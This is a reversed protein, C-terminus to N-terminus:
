RAIIVKVGDIIQTGTSLVILYVGAALDNVPVVIYDHNKTRNFSKVVKGSNDFFRLLIESNEGILSYEIILITQSPNPYVKLENKIHFQQPHWFINASKVEGSPLIYPENYPLNETARLINQAYTRAMGNATQYIQGIMALAASDAQLISNGSDLCIRNSAHLQEFGEHEQNQGPSFGYTLPLANMELEVGTNNGTQALKFIRLYKAWLYPCNVTYAIISDNAELSLSDTVFYRLLCQLAYSYRLRYGSINAQLDEMAGTIYIGQMVESMQEESLQNTRLNLNTLVTDSKAAQPNESLIDTIMASSLVDEKHIAAVMVTDSLYPSKTLLESYLDYGIPPSSLDIETKLESTNGGDTLLTLLGQLSDHNTEAMFLSSKLNEIGGGGGGHILQSPCCASDHTYYNYTSTDLTITSAGQYTYFPYPSVVKISGSPDHQYYTFTGGENHYRFDLPEPFIGSNSFGNGAPDTKLFGPNGQARNIGMHTFNPNDTTVAVDYKRYNAFDNCVISLGFSGDDNRNKNQALIGVGLNDFTNNYIENDANQNSGINSNNIVIGIKSYGHENSIGHFTNEEVKYGNCADLYLGGSYRRDNTDVKLVEFNCRTVQALSVASAYIGTNNGTFEARDVIFTRTPDFALASIGYDLNSFSSLEWTTCSDLHSEVCLPDIEFTSNFSQIGIGEVLSSDIANQFRCGQFHVMNVDNLRVMPGAPSYPAPLDSVTQFICDRFQDIKPLRCPNIMASIYNNFFASSFAKVIGGAETIIHVPVPGSPVMDPEGKIGTTRIGYIANEITANLLHVYGQYNPNSLPRTPDGAVSIGNWLSGCANTLKGGLVHLQGGPRVYIGTGGIFSVESRISLIGGSDVYVNHDKKMDTDWTVNTNIREYTGDDKCDLRTEWIGYGFTAIRLKEPSGQLYEMDTVIAPPLSTSFPMWKQSSFDFKYVGIDNGLFLNYGSSASGFVDMCNVPLNPLGESPYSFTAGGNESYAIRRKLPDSDIYFNGFSVWIKEPNDPAVVIGTIGYRYCYNKFAPDNLCEWTPNVSHANTTKVLYSSDAVPWGADYGIYLYDPNNQCAAIASISTNTAITNPGVDTLRNFFVSFGSGWGTSRYLNQYGAYVINANGPDILLQKRNEKSLDGAALTVPSITDSLFGDYTLRLHSASYGPGHFFRAYQPNGPRIRVHYADGKTDSYNWEGPAFYNYHLVHNDQSGAALFDFNTPCSNLGYFQTIYLGRGNINFFKFVTDGVVRDGRTVGGDNGIFLYEKSEDAVCLMARTDDHYSIYDQGFTQVNKVTTGIRRYSYFSIDGTFFREPDIESMEFEFMWRSGTGANNSCYETPTLSNEQLSLIRFGLSKNVTDQQLSDMLMAIFLYGTHQSSQDLMIRSTFYPTQCVPIEIFAATQLNDFLHSIKWLKAPCNVLNTDQDYYQFGDTSVFVNGDFIEADMVTKPLIWNVKTNTDPCVNSCFDWPVNPIEEWTSFGNLTRFIYNKGFALITGPQVPDILLKSIFPRDDDPTQLQIAQWTQGGNTTRLIGYGYYFSRNAGAMGLALYIIDSNSPDILIDNVGLGSPLYRGTINHWTMGGDTTKWLGSAGTGAYITHRTPDNPDLAVSVVIGYNQTKLGKPGFYEWDAGSNNEDPVNNIIKDFAQELKKIGGFVSGPIPGSNDLRHRWFCAWRSFMAASGSEDLSTDSNNLFWQNQIDCVEYFNADPDTLAIHWYQSSDVQAFVILQVYFM